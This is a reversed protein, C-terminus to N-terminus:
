STCPNPNISTTPIQIKKENNVIIGNAIYTNNIKLKTLNYTKVDIISKFNNKVYLIKKEFYDEFFTEKSMNIKGVFDVM